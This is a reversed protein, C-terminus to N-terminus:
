LLLTSPLKFLKWFSFLPQDLTSIISLHPHTQHHFYLKISYLVINHLFRSHHGHWAPSPLLSWWCKLFYHVLLRSHAFKIWIVMINIISPLFGKSSISYGEYHVFFGLICYRPAIEFVVSHDWNTELAFWDVNSYDLDIDWDNISFFSFSVLEILVWLGELYLVLLLHEKWALPNSHLILYDFSVQLLLCTQGQLVFHLLAFALLKVLLVHQDYCVGKELLVLSFEVCPCWWITLASM